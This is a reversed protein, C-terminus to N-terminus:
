SACRAGDSYAVDKGALVGHLAHEPVPRHADHDRRTVHLEILEQGHLEHRGLGREVADRHPPELL